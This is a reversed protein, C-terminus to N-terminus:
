DRFLISWGSVKINRFQRGYCFCTDLFAFSDVTSALIWLKMGPLSMTTLLHRPLRIHVEAWRRTDNTTPDSMYGGISRALPRISRTQDETTLRGCASIIAINTGDRCDAQPRGFHRCPDRPISRVLTEGFSAKEDDPM